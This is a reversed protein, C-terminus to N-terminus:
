NLLFVLRVIAGNGTKGGEALAHRATLADKKGRDSQRVIGVNEALIEYVARPAPTVTPLPLRAQSVVVNHPSFGM